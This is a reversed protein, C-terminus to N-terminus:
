DSLEEKKVWKGRVKKPEKWDRKPLWQCRIVKGTDEDIVLAETIGGGYGFPAPCQKGDPKYMGYVAFDMYEIMDHMYKEVTSSVEYNNQLNKKEKLMCEQRWLM